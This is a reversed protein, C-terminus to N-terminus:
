TESDPAESPLDAPDRAEAEQYLRGIYEELRTREVRWQGRGGVKVALLSRDRVMAYVQSHSVNLEEAVQQLTLFRMPVPSEATVVSCPLWGGVGEAPATWLGPALQHDEAQARGRGAARDREGLM